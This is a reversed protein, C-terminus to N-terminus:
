SWTTINWLAGPTKNIQFTHYCWSPFVPFYVGGNDSSTAMSVPGADTIDSIDM